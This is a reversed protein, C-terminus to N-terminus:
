EFDFGNEEEFEGFLDDGFADDFVDEDENSDLTEDTLLLGSEALEDDSFIDNVSVDGDGNFEKLAANFADQVEPTNTEEYRGKELIEKSLLEMARPNDDIFLGCELRARVSIHRNAEGQRNKAIIFYAKPDVQETDKEMERHILIVVNSDQAIAGSERIDYIKPTNDVEEDKKERNLQVLIMVPVNLEKALIKMDRSVEAVAEQRNKKGTTQILQLYDVVIFDLGDESQAQEIAKRKISESSVRPDEEIVLKTNELFDLAEEYRALEDSDLPEGKEIRQISIQARSAIIRSIVERETMELSFFCVSKGQVLADVINNIAFVTKGVGTRAGITILQTPAWGRTFFDISPYASSITNSYGDSEKLNKTEERFRSVADKINFKENATSELAIKTLESSVKDMVELPNSTTDSAESVAESLAEVTRNRVNDAKLLRAWQVPTAKIVWKSLDKELNFLWGADIAGGKDSIKLAISALNVEEKALLLDLMSEYILKFNVNEFSTSDVHAGVEVIQDPRAILSRILGEELKLTNKGM